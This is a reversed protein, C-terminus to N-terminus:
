KFLSSSFYFLFTHPNQEGARVTLDDIQKILSDNMQQLQGKFSVDYQQQQQQISSSTSTDATTAEAPLIGERYGNEADNLKSTHATPAAPSLANDRNERQINFSDVSDHPEDDDDNDKANSDLSESLQQREHQQQQQQQHQGNLITPEPVTEQERLKNKLRSFM